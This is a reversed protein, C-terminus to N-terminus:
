NYTFKLNQLKGVLNAKEETDYGSLNQTSELIERETRIGVV